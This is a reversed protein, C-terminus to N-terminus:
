TVALECSRTRKHLESGLHIRAVAGTHRREPPRAELPM